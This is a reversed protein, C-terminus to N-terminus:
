EMSKRDAIFIGAVFGVVIASGGLIYLYPGTVSRAGEYIMDGFLSVIGFLIIITYAAKKSTIAPNRM